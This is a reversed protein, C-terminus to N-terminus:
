RHVFPKSDRNPVWRARNDTWLGATKIYKQTKQQLSEAIKKSDAMATKMRKVTSYECVAWAIKCWTKVFQFTYHLTFVNAITKLLHLSPFSVLSETPIIVLNHASIDPKSERRRQLKQVQGERGSRSHPGTHAQTRRTPTHTHTPTPTHAHPHPHTHTHTHHRKVGVHLALCKRVPGLSWLGHLQLSRWRNPLGWFAAPRIKHPKKKTTTRFKSRTYIIVNRWRCRRNLVARLYTGWIEIQM